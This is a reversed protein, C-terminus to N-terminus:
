GATVLAIGYRVNADLYAQAMNLRVSMQSRPKRSLWAYSGNANGLLM